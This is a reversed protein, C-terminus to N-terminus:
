DALVLAEAVAAGRRDDDLHVVPAVDLAGVHPHLGPHGGIDIRGVAERAGAVLADSLRQPPAALTFVARHHDADAHVDLVRAGGQAFAEGIADLSARDRGESVNPVALLVPARSSGTSACARSTPCPAISRASRRSSRGWRPLPAPRAM